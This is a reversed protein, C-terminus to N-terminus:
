GFEKFINTYSPFQPSPIPSQSSVLYIFSLLLEEKGAKGGKDGKDEKDGIRLVWDRIV